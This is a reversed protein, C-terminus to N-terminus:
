EIGQKLVVYAQFETSTAPMATGSPSSQPTVASIPLTVPGGYVGSLVPAGYFNQVNKIVFADGPQLVSSLDVAVSGGHSWNFVIINARGPEYPSPEVVIHNPPTAGSLTSSGDFGFTSKWGAFDYASGLAAFPDFQGQYFYANQNWNSSAPVDQDLNIVAGGQLNIVTNGTFTFGSTWQSVFATGVIYNNTCTGNQNTTGFNYGIRFSNGMRSPNYYAMNGTAVLNILPSGGGLTYNMGDGVGSNFSANGQVTFNNLFANGSGYVHIGYGFQNWLVNDQLLKTGTENQAYIGHGYSGVSTGLFGNNYVLNGYAVQNPGESWLGFGDGSHDHVVLHIFRCGPCHSDVGQIDQTNSSTNAVEFGWFWTNSGEADIAGNLTAREGIYQRFIIPQATTGNTTITWMSSAEGSGYTGGRLWVTDGPHIKGGAGSFATALAWPSALTGAGGLTGNPAVYWGAHTTTGGGTSITFIANAKLAGFTATITDVGAALAKALGAATITALGAKSSAWTVTGAVVHGTSDKLTDTFQTQQGVTDAASTPTIVLTKAPLPLVHLIAAGQVSDSATVVISDDGPKLATVFGTSSVAAIAPASSRWEVSDSTAAGTSDLLSATLQKTAGVLLTDPTPTVNVRAVPAVVSDVSDPQVMVVYMDCNQSKDNNSGLTITGAPFHRSFIALQQHPYQDTNAMLLGTNVYRNKLWAPPVARTDHGVYVVVPVPVTFSLYASDKLDRNKDDNATQIWSAGLLPTPVTITHYTRDTYIVSGVAFSGTHAVYRNPSKVTLNGLAPPTSSAAVLTRVVPPTTPAVPQPTRNSCAVLAALLLVWRLQRSM